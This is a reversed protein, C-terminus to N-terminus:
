ELSQLVAVEKCQISAHQAAALSGCITSMALQTMAQHFVRTSNICASVHQKSVKIVQLEILLQILLVMGEHSAGFKSVHLPIYTKM